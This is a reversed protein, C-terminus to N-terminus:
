KACCLVTLCGVQNDPINLKEVTPNDLTHLKQGSAKNRDTKQRDEHWKKGKM